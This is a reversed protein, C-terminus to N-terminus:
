GRGTRQTSLAARLEKLGMRPFEDKLVKLGEARRFGMEQLFVSHNFYLTVVGKKESVHTLAKQAGEGLWERCKGELRFRDWDARVGLTRMAGELVQSVEVLGQPKKEKKKRRV